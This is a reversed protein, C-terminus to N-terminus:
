DDDDEIVGGGIKALDKETAFQSQLLAVCVAIVGLTIQNINSFNALIIFGLFFYPYLSKNGMVTLTIAFGFAPLIGGAAKLGNTVWAPVANLFAQVADGGFYVAIAAPIVRLPIACWFQYWFSSRRIAKSDVREAAADAMHLFASHYTRRINDILVALLGAPVALSVAIEPTIEPNLIVAPIAICSAFAEDSSINGGPAIAGLYILQLVAATKMATPVDGMVAGIFVAMVLPQRIITTSAYWVRNQGLWYIFGILIAQMVTVHSSM